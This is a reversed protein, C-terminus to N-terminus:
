RRLATHTSLAGLPSSGGVPVVYPRRGAAWLNSAQQESAVKLDTGAPVVHVVAGLLEDLLVNGSSLYDPDSREEAVIVEARLGTM